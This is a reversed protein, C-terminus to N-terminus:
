PNDETGRAGNEGSGDDQIIDDLTFSDFADGIKRTLKRSINSIPCAEMRDRNAAKVGTTAFCDCAAIPGDLARVTDGVTIEAPPRSLM